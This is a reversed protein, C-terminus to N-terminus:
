SEGTTPIPIRTDPDFTQEEDERWCYWAFEEQNELDNDPDEVEVTLVVEQSVGTSIQGSNGNLVVVLPRPEVRFFYARTANKHPELDMQAQCLVFHDGYAFTRGETSIQFTVVSFSFGTDTHTQPTESTINRYVKCTRTPTECDLSLDLINIDLEITDGKRYIEASEPSSGVTFDNIFALTACKESTINATYHTESVNCDTRVTLSVDVTALQSFTMPLDHHISETSINEYHSAQFSSDRSCQDESGRFYVMSEGNGLTFLYTLCLDTIPGDFNAKFTETVNPRLNRNYTFNKLNRCNAVVTVSTSLNVSNFENWIIATAIVTGQVPFSRSFEAGTALFDEEVVDTSYSTSFQIRARSPPTIGEPVRVFFNVPQDLRASELDSELTLNVVPDYASLLCSASSTGLLNSAEVQVEYDGDETYTHNVFIVDNEGLWGKEESGEDGFAVRATIHSGSRKSINFFYIEGTSIGHRMEGLNIGPCETTLNEIPAEFHVLLTRERMSVRNRFTLTFNHDGTGDVTYGQEVVSPWTSLESGAVQNGDFTVTLNAAELFGSTFSITWQFTGPPNSVVNPYTINPPLIPREVDIMASSNVSSVANSYTCEVRYTGSNNYFHTMDVVINETFGDLFVSNSTSGDGFSASISINSGEAAVCSVNLLEGTAVITNALMLRPEHIVKYVNLEITNNRQSVSNTINMETRLKGAQFSSQLQVGKHICNDPADRFKDTSTMEIIPSGDGVLISVNVNGPIVTNATPNYCLSYNVIGPPSAIVSRLVTLTLPQIEAALCYLLKVSESSISNFATINVNFDGESHYTHNVSFNGTCDLPDYMTHTQTTESTSDTDFDAFYKCHTGNTLNATVLVLENVKLCTLNPSAQLGAMKEQMQFSVFEIRSSVMNSITANVTHNGLLSRDTIHYTREHGSLRELESGVYSANADGFGAIGVFADTAKDGDTAVRVQFNVEGPPFAVVEPTITLSLPPIPHQIVLKECNLAATHVSVANALTVIPSYNGAVTYSHPIEASWPSNDGTRYGPASDDGFNLSLNFHSGNTLIVEFPVTQSVNFYCRAIGSPDNRLTANSLVEVIDFTVAAYVTNIYNYCTADVRKSLGIDGHPFTQTLDVSQRQRLPGAFLLPSDSSSGQFALECFVDTPPLAPNGELNIHIDGESSPWVMRFPSGTTLVVPVVEYQIIFMQSCNASRNTVDNYMNVRCTYNGEEYQFTKTLLNTNHFTPAEHYEDAIEWTGNGDFDVSLYIHSGWTINMWIEANTGVKVTHDVPGVALDNIAQHFMVRTTNTQDSVKNTCQISIGTREGPTVDYLHDHSFSNGSMVMAVGTETTADDYTFDCTADTPDHEHGPKVLTYTTTVDPDLKQTPIEAIYFPPVPHQATINCDLTVTIPTETLNNVAQVTVPFTGPGIYGHPVDVAYSNPWDIDSRQVLENTGDGFDITFNVNSGQTIAISFVANELTYISGAPPVTRANCEGDGNKAPFTMTLGQIQIGVLVTDTLHQESVNNWLRVEINYFMFYPFNLNFILSNSSDLFLEGEEKNDDYKFDILFMSSTPDSSAADLLTITVADSPKPVDNHSITFGQIPKEIGLLVTDVEATLTNSMSLTVIYYGAASYVYCESYSVPGSEEQGTGGTAPTSEDGFDLSYSYRSGTVTTMNFCVSETVNEHTINGFITLATGTILEDVSISLSVQASSVLNEAKVLITYDAATYQGENILAYGTLANAEYFIQDSPVQFTTSTQTNTLNVSFTVNTGTTLTWSVTIDGGVNKPSPTSGALGTVPLEITVEGSFSSVNLYNTCMASWFYIGPIPFVHSFTYSTSLTEEYLVQLEDDGFSLECTVHSGSTAVRSFDVQVTDNQSPHDATIDLGVIPDVVAILISRYIYTGSNSIRIESDYFGKAQYTHCLQQLNSYTAVYNELAFEDGLIWFVTIRTGSTATVTVCMEEGFVVHNWTIDTVTLTDDIEAYATASVYTRRFSLCYSCTWIDKLGISGLGAM